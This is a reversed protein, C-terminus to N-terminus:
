NIERNNRSIPVAGEDSGSILNRNVVGIHKYLRDLQEDDLLSMHSKVKINIEEMKEMLRKSTTNLEKALEHVRKSM